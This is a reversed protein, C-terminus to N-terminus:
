GHEAEAMRGLMRDVNLSWGEDSTLFLEILPVAMESGRLSLRRGGSVIRGEGKSAGSESGM